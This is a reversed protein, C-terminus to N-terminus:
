IMTIRSLNLKIGFFVSTRFIPNRKMPNEIDVRRVIQLLSTLKVRDSFAFAIDFNGGYNNYGKAWRKIVGFNLAITAELRDTFTFRNFTYSVQILSYRFYKGAYLDAYEVSQGISYYGFARQEFQVSYNVLLDLTFPNNGHGDKKMAMKPDVFVDVSFMEQSPLSNSFFLICLTCIITKM